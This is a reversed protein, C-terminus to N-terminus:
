VLKVNENCFGKNKLTSCSFCLMYNIWLTKKVTLLLQIFINCSFFKSFWYHQFSFHLILAITSEWDEEKGILCLADAVHKWRIRNRIYAQNAAM